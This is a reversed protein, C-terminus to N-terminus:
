TSDGLRIVCPMNEFGALALNLDEVTIDLAFLAVGDLGRGRLRVVRVGSNAEGEVRLGTIQLVGPVIFDDPM